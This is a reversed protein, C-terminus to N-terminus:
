LSEQQGVQTLLCYVILLGKLQSIAPSNSNFIGEYVQLGVTMQVIGAASLPDHEKIEVTCKVLSPPYIPVASIIPRYIYNKKYRCRGSSYFHVGINYQKTQTVPPNWVTGSHLQLRELEGM